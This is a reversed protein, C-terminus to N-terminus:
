LSHRLISKTSPILKKANRTSLVFDMVARPGHLTKHLRGVRDAHCGLLAEKGGKEYLEFYSATEILGLHTLAQPFNGLFEGTAADYEESLLGLDNPCELLRDFIERGEEIEGAMLLANVLWFSCILFHGENGRVGDHCLYRRVFPGNALHEQVARTTRLHVGEELPYGLSKVLLLSADLGRSQASRTLRGEVMCHDRIFAEIKVKEQSFDERPGLISEARDLAVWCMVKSFTFDEEESRVEWIGRDKRTWNKAVFEATERIERILDDHFRGGIKLHLHAWDLFEGYTDLQIQAFADNGTRVPSSERYGSVEPHIVEPNFSGGDIRYLVKLTKRDGPRAVMQMYDGYRDAEGSYGLYALSYLTFTSDRLWSYRYDWNREGGIKEPLSTTPAAVIAGTPAFTLLKLALASRNIVRRHPGRYESYEIWEKWFHRTVSLMEEIRKPPLNTLSKHSIVVYYPNEPTLEVDAQSERLLSLEESGGYVSAIMENGPWLATQADIGIRIKEGTVEIKRVLGHFADLQTYEHTKSGPVRGVPMFDTVMLRSNKGRAETVLINTGKEYQRCFWSMDEPIRFGLSGGKQDLLAWLAPPNDFRRLVLWDVRAERSILASGHCDGVVGYDQIPRFSM